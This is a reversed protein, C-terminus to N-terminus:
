ENIILDNMLLIGVATGQDVTVTPPRAFQAQMAQSTAQGVKGLGAYAADKVTPPPRQYNFDFWISPSPQQSYTFYNGFGDLFASAFLSGYRLMYHNDVDSALATQATKADIAYASIPTSAKAGDISISTFKIVLRKDERTFGGLLKANRYPGTVVTALVPTSPQDSNIATDIVAYIVSGAKYDATKYDASKSPSFDKQDSSSDALTVSQISSSAQVNQKSTVSKIQNALQNKYLNLAERQNASLQNEQLKREFFGPKKTEHEELYDTPSTQKEQPKNVAKEHKEPDKEDGMAFYSNGDQLAKNAQQHVYKNQLTKYNAQSKLNLGPVYVDSDEVESNVVQKASFLNMLIVLIFLIFVAIILIRVRPIAWLRKIFDKFKKM